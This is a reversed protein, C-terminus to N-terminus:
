TSFLQKLPIKNVTVVPHDNQSPYGTTIKDNGLFKRIVSKEAEFKGAAL